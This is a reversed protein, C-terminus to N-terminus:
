ANKTSIETNEFEAKIQKMVKEAAIISYIDILADATPQAFIVGNIGFFHNFIYILPLFLVLNRIISIATSQKKNGIAQYTTRCNNNIAMCLPLTSYVRVFLTAFKVTVEEKIFLRAFQRAFPFLVAIAFCGFIIGIQMSKKRIENMRNYNRNGYNYSILPICGQYLGIVMQGAVHELKRAIGVAAIAADSYEKVVKMFSMNVYSTIIQHLWAPFGISLVDKVIGWDFKFEKWPTYLHEKKQMRQCIFMFLIMSCMSSIWTAMAAGKVGMDMGFIFIPDLIINLVNGFSLGIMEYKSYGRGRLGAGLTTGLLNPIANLGIVWFLYEKTYEICSETAGAFWSLPELFLLVVGGLVIGICVALIPCHSAVDEARKKDGAGLAKSIVACGGVVLLNCFATLAIMVTTSLTLAAVMSPNNLQGIYLTDALNYVINVLQNLINPIALSLIAKSANMNEFIEQRSVEQKKKFLM